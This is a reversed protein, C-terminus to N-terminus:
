IIWKRMVYVYKLVVIILINIMMIMEEFNKLFWICNLIM